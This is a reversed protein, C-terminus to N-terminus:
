QYLEPLFQLAVKKTADCAFARGHQREFEHAKKLKVMVVNGYRGDPLFDRYDYGRNAVVVAIPEDNARLGCRSSAYSATALIMAMEDIALTQALADSTLAIILAFLFATQRVIKV